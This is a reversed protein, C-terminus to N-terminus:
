KKTVDKKLYRELMPNDARVEESGSLESLNEFALEAIKQLLTASLGADEAAELTQLTVKSKARELVSAFVKVDEKLELRKADQIAGEADRRFWSAYLPYLERNRKRGVGANEFVFDIAEKRSKDFSLQNLLVGKLSNRSAERPLNEILSTFLKPDESFHERVANLAVLRNSVPTLNEFYRQFSTTGAEWYDRSKERVEGHDIPTLQGEVKEDNDSPEVPARSSLNRPLRDVNDSVERTQHWIIFFLLLIGVALYKM